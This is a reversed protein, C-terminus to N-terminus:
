SSSARVATRRPSLTAVWEMGISEVTMGLYDAYFIKAAAIDDVRLNTYVATVRVLGGRGLIHGLGPADAATVDVSAQSGSRTCPDSRGTTGPRARARLQSNAKQRSRDDGPCAPPVLVEDACDRLVVVLAM